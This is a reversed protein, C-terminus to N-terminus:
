VTVVNTATAHWKCFRVYVMSPMSYRSSINLMYRLAIPWLAASGGAMTAPIWAATAFSGRFALALWRDATSPWTSNLAPM